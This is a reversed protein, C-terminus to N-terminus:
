KTRVKKKSSKKSAKKPAKKPPRRLVDVDPEGGRIAHPFRKCPLHYLHDGFVLADLTPRVAPAPPRLHNTPPPTDPLLPRLDLTPADLPIVMFRHAASVTFLSHPHVDVQAQEDVTCGVWLNTLPWLGDFDFSGVFGPLAFTHPCTQGLIRWAEHQLLYNLWHHHLRHHPDPQDAIQRQYAARDPHHHLFEFMAAVRQLDRPEWLFRHQRPCSAMVGLCQMLVRLGAVFEGEAVSRWWAPDLFVTQPRKWHLPALPDRSPNWPTRSIKNKRPM